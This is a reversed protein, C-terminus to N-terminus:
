AASSGYIASKAEGQETLRNWIRRYLRPRKPPVQNSYEHTTLNQDWLAIHFQLLLGVLSMAVGDLLGQFPLLVYAAYIANPNNYPLSTRAREPDIFCVSFCYLSWGANFGTVLFSLLLVVFFSGYNAQGICANLYVCHHDYVAICKNCLKCHRTQPLVELQCVGCFGEYVVPVGRQKLYDLDRPKGEALVRKDENNVTTVHVTCALQVAHLVALFIMVGNRAPVPSIFWGSIGFFVVTTTIWTFLMLLFMWHFPRQWATLRKWANAGKRLEPDQPSAHFSTEKYYCLRFTQVYRDVLRQIETASPQPPKPPAKAGQAAAGNSHLLAPEPSTLTAASAVASPATGTLEVDGNGNASSAM